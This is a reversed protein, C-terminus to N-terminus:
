NFRVRYLPKSNEHRIIILQGNFENAAKVAAKYNRGFLVEFYNASVKRPM